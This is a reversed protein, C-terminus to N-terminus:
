RLLGDDRDRRNEAILDAVPGAAKVRRKRSAVPRKASRPRTLTGERELRDLVGEADVAVLRAVPVGRDTVVVREGARARDVYEKLHGRLQSVAVDV